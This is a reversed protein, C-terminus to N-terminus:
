PSPGLAKDQNFPKAYHRLLTRFTFVSTPVKFWSKSIKAFRREFSWYFGDVFNTIATIEFTEAVVSQVSEVGPLFVTCVSININQM